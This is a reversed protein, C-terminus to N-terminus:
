SRMLLETILNEYEYKNLGLKKRIKRHRFNNMFVGIFLFLVFIALVISYSLAAFGIIPRPLKFITAFYGVLFSAIFFTVMSKKPKYNEHITSTSFYKYVIKSWKTPPYKECLKLLDEVTKKM